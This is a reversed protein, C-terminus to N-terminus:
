VKLQEYGILLNDLRHETATRFFWFWDNASTRWILHEWFIRLILLFIGTNSDRKLLTAPRWSELLIAFNKLVAKKM